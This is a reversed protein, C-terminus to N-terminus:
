KRYWSQGNSVIEINKEKDTRLFPINLSNLLKLTELSPHGYSNKGVSIIALAPQVSALFTPSLGTKSGHHPFKLISLKNECSFKNCVLLTEFNLYNLLQIMSDADLDGTFLSSFTGFTLQVVTSTSNLDSTNKDNEPWLVSLNVIGDVKVNEGKQAEIKKIKKERILREWLKYEEGSAKASSDIIQKVEYRKVIEILGTLHDAQPHSLILLEITRDWFPMKSGLCNLVRADPGGDIVIDSGKPGRIYAADGQGVDCFVLHLHNDPLSILFSFLLYFFAIIGLVIIKLKM